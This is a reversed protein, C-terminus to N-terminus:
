GGIDAEALARARALVDLIEPLKRTKEDNFSCVMLMNLDNTALHQLSRRVSPSWNLIPEIVRALYEVAKRQGDRKKTARIGDILCLGRVGNRPLGQRSWPWKGSRFHDLVTGLIKAAQLAAARGDTNGDFPM